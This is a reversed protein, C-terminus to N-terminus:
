VQRCPMYVQYVSSCDLKQQKITAELRYDGSSAGFLYATKDPAPWFYYYCQYKCAYRYSAQYCSSTHVRTVQMRPSPVYSGRSNAYSQMSAAHCGSPMSAVNAEMWGQGVDRIDVKCRCCPGNTCLPFQNVSAMTTNVQAVERVAAVEAAADRRQQKMARMASALLPVLYLMLSLQLKKM